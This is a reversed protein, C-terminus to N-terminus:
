PISGSSVSDALFFNQANLVARRRICRISINENYFPAWADRFAANRGSM